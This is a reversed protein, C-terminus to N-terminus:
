DLAKIAKQIDNDKSASLFYRAEQNYLYSAFESKLQAKILMKSNSELSNNVKINNNSKAYDIFAELLNNSNPIVFSFRIM